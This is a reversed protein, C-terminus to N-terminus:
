NQVERHFDLLSYTCVGECRLTVNEWEGNPLCRVTANGGVPYFGQTCVYRTTPPDDDTRTVTIQLRPM